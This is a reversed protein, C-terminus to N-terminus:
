PLEQVTAGKPPTFSFRKADLGQNTKIDSFDFRNENGQPDVVITTRVAGTASEVAFYLKKFGSQPKKPTLELVEGELGTKTTLALEFEDPLNGKGWLFTVAASLQDNSFSRQVQVQNMDPDWIWLSKGDAIFQRKDAYDWRMFGPKMVQVTGSSEKPKRMGKTRYAQKFSATFDKSADYFSQVKAALKKAPDLAAAVQKADPKKVEPQPVPKKPAPKAPEDKQTVRVGPPPALDALLVPSSAPSPEVAPEPNQAAVLTAAVTAFPIWLSLM